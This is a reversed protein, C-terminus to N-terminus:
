AGVGLCQRFPDFLSCFLGSETPTVSFMLGAIDYVDDRLNGLLQRHVIVRKSTDERGMCRVPRASRRHWANPNTFACWNFDGAQNTLVRRVSGQATMSAFAPIWAVFGPGRSSSVRRRPYSTSPPSSIEQVVLKHGGILHDNKDAFGTNLGIRLWNAHM